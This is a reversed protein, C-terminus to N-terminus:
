LDLGIGVFPGSTKRSTNDYKNINFLGYNYGGFLQFQQFGISLGFTASVNFPKLYINYWTYEDSFWEDDFKEFSGEFITKGIFTYSFKPGAFLTFGLQSSPHITYNFLLPVDIGFLTMTHQPLIGTGVLGTYNFNSTETGYRLQGGISLNLNDIVPINYDAGLFFSNIHYGRAFGCNEPSYGAHIHQASVQGAFLLSATLIAITFFKKM